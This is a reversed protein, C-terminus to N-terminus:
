HSVFLTPPARDRRPRASRHGISIPAILAVAVTLWVTSLVVVEPLVGPPVDDTAPAFATGAFTSATSGTSDEVRADSAVVLTLAFALAVALLAAAGSSARSEGSRRM